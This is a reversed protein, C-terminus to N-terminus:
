LWTCEIWHSFLDTSNVLKEKKVFRPFTDYVTYAQNWEYNIKEPPRETSKNNSNNALQETM